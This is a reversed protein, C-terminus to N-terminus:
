GAARGLGARASEEPEAQEAEGSDSLFGPGGNVLFYSGTGGILCILTIAGAAVLNRIARRRQELRDSELMISPISALVPLSLTTQLERPGHFSSDLSEVLIGVALGIGIGLVFGLVIILPRQPSIPRSSAYADELIRFQEGLQRRELDAQVRAKMSLNSFANLSNGLQEYGRDLADLQEAVRPTAGLRDEVEDIQEQIAKVDANAASLRLAARKREADMRLFEYSRRPEASAEEQAALEHSGELVALEQRLSVVDPHRDTFGRSRLEGLALEIEQMRRESEEDTPGGNGDDDMLRMQNEWFTYDGRLLDRKEMASQLTLTLRERLRQNSAFNEPLQGPNADKVDAIEKEVAGILRILREEEGSIFQLSKQTLDVRAEIHKETFDEALRQAVRAAVRPDEARYTIRFTNVAQDRAQAKTGQLEAEVAAVTIKSKMYDILEERMMEERLEPYLDLDDIMVSLRGRSLIEATMQTLRTNLDSENLGAEVLRDNVTQPQVLLVATSSYENPLAMAVWFSLLFVSGAVSAVLLARRRIGGVLDIQIGTDMNM